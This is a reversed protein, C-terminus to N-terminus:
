THSSNLRTSKRDETWTNEGSQTHGYDGLDDAGRTYIGFNNWGNSDYDCKPNALMHPIVAQAEHAITQWPLQIDLELYGLNSHNLIWNADATLNEAHQQVVNAHARAFAQTIGPINAFKALEKRLPM